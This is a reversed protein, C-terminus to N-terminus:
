LWFIIGHSEFCVFVWCAFAHPLFSNNAIRAKSNNIRFMFSGASYLGFSEQSLIILHRKKNMM